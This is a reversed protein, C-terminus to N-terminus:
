PTSRRPSPDLSDVAMSERLVNVDCDHQAVLLQGCLGPEAPIRDVIIGM